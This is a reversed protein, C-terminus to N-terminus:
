HGPRVPPLLTSEPQCKKSKIQRLLSKMNSLHLNRNTHEQYNIAIYATLFADLEQSVSPYAAQLRKIYHTPGEGVHRALNVRTFHQSLRLWLRDAPSPPAPRGRWYMWLALLVIPLALLGLFLAINQWEPLHGLWDRYLKKQRSNDYSLVWRYWLFNLQDVRLQLHRLWDLKLRARSLPSDALFGDEAAFARESGLEIRHPAVAATPDVRQWGREPL